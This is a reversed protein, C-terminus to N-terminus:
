AHRKLSLSRKYLWRSLCMYYISAHMYPLCQVCLKLPVNPDQQLGSLFYRCLAPSLQEKMTESAYYGGQHLLHSWFTTMMDQVIALITGSTPQQQQPLSSSSSSSSSSSQRKPQQQLVRSLDPLFIFNSIKPKVLDFNPDYLYFTIRQFKSDHSTKFFVDKIITANYTALFQQILANALTCHDWQIRAQEQELQDQRLKPDAQILLKSLTTVDSASLRSTAHCHIWEQVMINKMAKPCAVQVRALFRHRCLEHKVHQKYFHEREEQDPHLGLMTLLYDKQQLHKEDGGDGDLVCSDKHLSVAQRPSYVMSTRFGVVDFLEQLKVLNQRIKVGEGLLSQLPKPPETAAGFVPVGLWDEMVLRAHKNNSKDDLKRRKPAYVLDEDDSTKSM